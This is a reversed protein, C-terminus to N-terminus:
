GVPGAAARAIEHVDIEADAPVVLQDICVDVQEVAAPRLVRRDIGVHRHAACAAGAVAAPGNGADPERRQVLRAAHAGNGVQERAAIEAAYGKIVDDIVAGDADDDSRVEEAIFVQGFDLR